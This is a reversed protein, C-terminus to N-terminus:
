ECAGDTIVATYRRPQVTSRNSGTTSSLNRLSSSCTRPLSIRSHVRLPM